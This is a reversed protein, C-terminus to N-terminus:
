PTIIIVRNQTLQANTAYAYHKHENWGIGNWECKDNTYTATTRALIESPDAQKEGKNKVIEYVYNSTSKDNETMTLLPRNKAAIAKCSYDAAAMQSPTITQLVM